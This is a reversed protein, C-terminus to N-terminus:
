VSKGLHLHLCSTCTVMSAVKAVVLLRPPLSAAPPPPPLPPSGPYQHCSSRQLLPEFLSLFFGNSCGPPDPMQLPLLYANWCWPKPPPQPGLRPASKPSVGGELSWRLSTIESIGWDEYRVEGLGFRVVGLVQFYFAIVELRELAGRTQRNPPGRVSAKLRVQGRLPSFLESVPDPGSHDPPCGALRGAEGLGRM